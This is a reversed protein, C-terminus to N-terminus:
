SKTGTHGSKSGQGTVLSQCSGASTGVTGPSPTKDELDGGGGRTPGPGRPDRQGRPGPRGWGNWAPSPPCLSAWSSTQGSGGERRCGASGSLELRGEGSSQCGPLGPSRGALRPTPITGVSPYSGGRACAAGKGKQFPVRTRPKEAGQM